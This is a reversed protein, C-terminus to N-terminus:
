SSIKMIGRFFQIGGFIIAGWFIYGTDAITAITGGVFFIGGVVVDKMGGSSSGEEESGENSAGIAYNVLKVAADKQMGDQMLIVVVEESSKKEVNLLHKIRIYTQNADSQQVEKNEEM